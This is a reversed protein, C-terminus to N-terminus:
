ETEVESGGSEGVQAKGDKAGQEEFDTAPIMDPKGYRRSFYAPNLDPPFYHKRKVWVFGDGKTIVAVDIPGGVTEDQWSVHRRFSTLNVLSEAMEALQDKPLSPVVGVIDQAFNNQRYVAARDSWREAMNHGFDRLINAVNEKDAGLFDSLSNVVEDSYETLLLRVTGDLFEQYSPDIGEMFLYVMERQAYPAIVAENSHGVEPQDEDFRFKLRNCAMGEIKLSRAVPFFEADGFGAVVVGTGSPIGTVSEAYGAVIRAGIENLRNATGASLYLSRFLERRLDRIDSIYQTRAAILLERPVDRMADVSVAQSHYRRTVREAIGKLLDRAETRADVGPDSSINGLESVLRSRIESSISEFVQAVQALVYSRQVDEPVQEVLTREVFNVFRDAYGELNPLTTEGLSRRFAKIVTEWPMGLLSANGYVMIGVPAVDSLGFLKNTSAFIKQSSGSTSTAASDAAMAVAELNMVVIEATM